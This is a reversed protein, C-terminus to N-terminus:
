DRPSPSTYLLCSEEEIIDSDDDKQKVDEAFGTKTGEPMNAYFDKTIEIARSLHEEKIKGGYDAVVDFVTAWIKGMEALSPILQEPEIELPEVEVEEPTPPVSLASEVQEPEPAQRAEMYEQHLSKGSQSLAQHYTMSPNGSEDKSQEVLERARSHMEKALESQTNTPKPAQAQSPQVKDSSEGQVKITVEHKSNAM